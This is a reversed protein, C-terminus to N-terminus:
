ELWARMKKLAAQEIQRVREASIGLEGALENLTAAPESLWRRTIILRSREDLRALAKQLGEEERQTAETEAILEEPTGNPDPIWALPARWSEEEDDAPTELAVDGGTIRLHMEQVEEPKVALSEAIAAAREHTLSKGGLLKRLNFFLKKQAKTTAIKVLRWNRLIYDHIEAKIWHVAFTIFRVGRAPDFRRVAKLLGVNGEQILDAEPLGYGFYHRAIMVVYRLNALILQRAADLDHQERFRRALAEEQEQSLLPLRNVAQIYRELSSIPSPLWQLSPMPLTPAAGSLTQIATTM